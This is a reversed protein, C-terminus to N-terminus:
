ETELNTHAPKAAQKRSFQEGGPGGSGPPIHMKGLALSSASLQTIHCDIQLASFVRFVKM